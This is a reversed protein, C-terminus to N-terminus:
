SHCSVNPERWLLGAPQRHCMSAGLPTETVGPAGEAPSLLEQCPASPPVSCMGAASGPCLCELSATSSLMMRLLVVAKKSLGGESGEGLGVDLVVLICRGFGKRCCGGLFVLTGGGWIACWSPCYTKLWGSCAWHSLSAPVHPM